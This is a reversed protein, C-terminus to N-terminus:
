HAVGLLAIRRSVTRDFLGARDSFWPSRITEISRSPQNTSHVM